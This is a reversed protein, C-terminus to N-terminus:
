FVDAEVVNSANSSFLITLPVADNSVENVFVHTTGYDANLGNITLVPVAEASAPVPVIVYEGATSGFNFLGGGPGYNGGSAGLNGTGVALGPLFQNSLYDYDNGNIDMLVEVAGTPNGLASLPIALELGTTVADAVAQMAATGSDGNVGATNINNLAVAIGGGNLNQNNGAGGSLTISGLSSGAGSSGSLVFQDVSLTAGTLTFTFLLNPNFGPSFTSGNMAAEGPFGGLELIHQGGALGDAIFIDINNGNDQLNGAIFLYLYGNTAVGYVADLESGGSSAGSSDSNNDGFGTNITQTALPGGYGESNNLTGDVTVQAHASAALGTIAMLLSLVPTKQYDKIRVIRLYLKSM